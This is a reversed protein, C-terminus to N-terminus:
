CEVVYYEGDHGWEDEADEVLEDRGAEEVAVRLEVADRLGADKELHVGEEGPDGVAEVVGEYDVVDAHGDEPRVEGLGVAAGGAVPDPARGDICDGEDGDEAFGGEDRGGPGFVVDDGHGAAEEEPEDEHGGVGGDGGLEVEAGLVLADQGAEQGAWVEPEGNDGDRGEAQDAVEGPLVCLAHVARLCVVM